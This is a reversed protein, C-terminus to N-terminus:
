NKVMGETIDALASVYASYITLACMRHSMGSQYSCVIAFGLIRSMGEIDAVDMVMNPFDFSELERFVGNIYEKKETNM